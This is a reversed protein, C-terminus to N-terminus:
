EVERLKVYSCSINLFNDALRKLGFALFNSIVYLADVVFSEIIRLTIHGTISSDVCIRGEKLVM